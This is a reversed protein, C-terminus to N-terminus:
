ANYLMWKLARFSIPEGLGTIADWGPRAPWGGSAFDCSYSTGKTADRFTALDTKNYLLENLWGVSQKGARFRIDNILAVMAAFVPAGAGTGVTDSVSGNVIIYYGDGVISVDPIGRGNKNYYGDLHGKLKEIYTTVETQWPPRDFYYSFGGSSFDVGERSRVNRTTAGVATVWPCSAPFTPMTTRTNNGDRSSCNGPRAGTSGGHGSAHIISTGRKTLLGYGDCVRRAYQEPVSLEDDAYSVSLVHPLEDDPTDLLHNIFDLYPENNDDDKGQAPQGDPGLSVGRGGTAYYTVSAPFGIGMGYELDLMAELGAPTNDDKGGPVKEVSFDYDEINTQESLFTKLDDHNANQELYGAIGFRVLSNNGPTKYNIEYRQKLCDITISNSCSFKSRKAANFSDINRSVRGDSRKPRMFNSIPHIFSIADTLESPISYQRTRLKTVSGDYAYNNFTGRVLKEATAVTTTVRILDHDLTADLVNESRLWKMVGDVSSQEPTRLSRVDERSIHKGGKAMLAPIDVRPQKLAISFSIEEAPDVANDLKKWDPLIPVQKFVISHATASGALVAIFVTIFPM